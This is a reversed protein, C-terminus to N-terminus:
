IKANKSVDILLQILHRNQLILEYYKEFQETMDMQYWIEALTCEECWTAEEDESEFEKDCVQCIM